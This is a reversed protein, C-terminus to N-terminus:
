ARTVTWARAQFVADLPTNFMHNAYNSITKVSIALLIDLVHQESYGAAVFVAVDRESPRGRTSLLQMTFQNLASMKACSIATGNRIADTTEVPVGSKVDAMFSHAAVCYECGNERSITLLVVEQEAANFGSETRFQNYGFLYTELLAPVNAMASYMNPIFGVQKRARELVDKAKASGTELTQPQLHLTSTTM